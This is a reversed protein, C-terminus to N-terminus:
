TSCVTVSTTVPMSRTRALNQDRLAATKVLRRQRQRRLVLDARAADRQLAADRGFIGLIVEDGVVPADGGISRGAAKGHPEVAAVPEAAGDDRRVEVRQEDLHRDPSLRELLRHAPGIARQALKADAADLGVDRKEAVQDEMRREDRAARRGLKTSEVGSSNRNRAGRSRAVLTSEYRPSTVTFPRGSTLPRISRVFARRLGTGGRSAIARRRRPQTLPQLRHPRLLERLPHPGLPPEEERVRRHPVRM